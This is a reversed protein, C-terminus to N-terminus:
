ETSSDQVADPRSNTESPQAQAPGHRVVNAVYLLVSAVLVILLLIGLNAAFNQELIAKIKPQSHARYIMPLAVVVILVASILGGQLFRRARPPVTRAIGAGVAIVIPSLIGDHIVLAGVLWCALVFLDYGAIQTLLRFIGFLGLLIGPVAILVRTRM